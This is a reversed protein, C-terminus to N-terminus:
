FAKQPAIGSSAMWQLFAKGVDTIEYHDDRTLTILGSGTLFQIYQDDSYNEYPKPYQAKAAELFEILKRKSAGGYLNLYHLAAIQSGFILRYTTEARRLLQEVALHRILVSATNPTDDGLDLSRLDARIAREQQLILPSIGYNKIQELRVSGNPDLSAPLRLGEATDSKMEQQSAASEPSISLGEKGYTVKSSRLLDTLPGRFLLLAFCGILLFALPWVGAHILANMIVDNGYISRGASIARPIRSTLLAAGNEVALFDRLPCRAETRKM